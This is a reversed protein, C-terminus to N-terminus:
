IMVQFVVVWMKMASFVLSAHLHEKNRVKRTM